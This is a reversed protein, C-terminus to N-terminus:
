YQLITVTINDFGGNENAKNILQECKDSIDTDSAIIEYIKKDDVVNHLGDSCLMVFESKKLEIKYVDPNNGTVDGIAKTLYKKLSNMYEEDYSDSGTDLLEQVISHDKSVQHITDSIYYCRSDGINAVYFIGGILVGGVLTTGMRSLKPDTIGIQYVYSNAFRVAKKLMDYIQKESMNDHLNIKIQHVFIEIGHKSAIEGGQEGGMGDCVCMIVVDDVHECHFTDQNKSRLKGIDTKGFFRM